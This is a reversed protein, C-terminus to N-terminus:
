INIFAIGKYYAGNEMGLTELHDPQLGGRWVLPCLVVSGLVSALLSGWKCSLTHQKNFHLYFMGRLCVTHERPHCSVSLM